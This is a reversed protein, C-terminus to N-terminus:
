RLKEYTDKGSAWNRLNNLRAGHDGHEKDNFLDQLLQCPMELCQGCHEYGKSICCKAKDCVGWFMEGHCAKCGPCHCPEKWECTGCYAGCMAKMNDDM